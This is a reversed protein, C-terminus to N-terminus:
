QGNPRPAGAPFAVDTQAGDNVPGDLENRLHPTMFRRECHSQVMVEAGVACVAKGQEPTMLSGEMSVIRNIALSLYVPDEIAELLEIGQEFSGQLVSAVREARCPDDACPADPDVAPTSCAFLAFLATTVVM